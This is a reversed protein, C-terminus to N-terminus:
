IDALLWLLKPTAASSQLVSEIVDRAAAVEGEELLKSARDRAHDESSGEGPSGVSSRTTESRLESM